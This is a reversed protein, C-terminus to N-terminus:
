RPPASNNIAIRPPYLDRMPVLLDDEALVAVRVTGAVSGPVNEAGGVGNELVQFGGLGRRAAGDFVKLVVFVGFGQRERTRASDGRQRDGVKVTSNLIAIAVLLCSVVLTVSKFFIGIVLGSAALYALIM